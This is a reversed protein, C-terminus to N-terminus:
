LKIIKNLIYTPQTNQHATGSGNIQTTISTTGSNVTVGTANSVVNPTAAPVSANFTSAGGSPNEAITQTLDVRTFSHVHGPDTVGHIHGPDTVGHSHAALEATVLAHTQTGGSAGNTTGVIAAGANTIRSATSGGMNDDGAVVRGRLDPLTITKNAAFDVAASAGRGGSVPAEADAMNAYLLTFLDSTDANARETGGSAANGITRGSALVYGSPATTGIYDKVVGTQELKLTVATALDSQVITADVIKVSTISSDLLNATGVNGQLESYLTDFDANIQSSLITQGAAFVHPKTPTTTNNASLVAVSLLLLILPLARREIELKIM